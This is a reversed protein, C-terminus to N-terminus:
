RNLWILQTEEPEQMREAMRYYRQSLSSLYDQAKKGQENLDMLKDIGWYQVLHDIINAYDLSTYVGIKQTINAYNLYQNKKTGFDMLTAPMVIKKKMMTLFADIGGNPDIEIIKSMFFKYAREHLAEEGAITNCIKTLVSDGSKSALKGTNVHSIKTAREQFSTYILGQYPDGGTKLDVGNYLLQQITKEVANMDVRGSLYLYKNLLDGHRNEEATWLRSWRVWPSMSAVNREDNVGELLNFFTQYSPLAEETIMNGVLSVLVSDPLNAMREQILKISEPFDPSSFDPLFDSPQWSEEPLNMKDDIFEGVNHEIAKLVELQEQFVM